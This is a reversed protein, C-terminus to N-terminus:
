PMTVLSSFSKGESDSDSLESTMLTSKIPMQRASTLSILPDRSIGSSRPANNPCSSTPLTANAPSFVPNKLFSRTVNLGFMVGCLVVPNASYKKM